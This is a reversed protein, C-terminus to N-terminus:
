RGATTQAGAAEGAADVERYPLTRGRYHLMDGAFICLAQGPQDTVPAFVATRPYEFDALVAGTLAAVLWPATDQSIELVVANADGGLLTEWTETREYLDLIALTAEEPTPEADTAPHEIRLINCTAKDNGLLGDIVHIRM